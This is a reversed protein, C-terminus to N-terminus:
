TPSQLSDVVLLSCTSRRYAARAGTRVRLAGQGHVQEPGYRSMSATGVQGDRLHSETEHFVFIQYVRKHRSVPDQPRWVNLGEYSTRLVIRVYVRASM